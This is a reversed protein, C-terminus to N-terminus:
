NVLFTPLTLPQGPMDLNVYNTISDRENTEIIPIDNNDQIIRFPLAVETNEPNNLSKTAEVWQEVKEKEEDAIKNAVYRSYFITGTVILIGVLALVTRWNLLQSFM